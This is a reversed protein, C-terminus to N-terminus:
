SSFTSNRVRTRSLTLCSRVRERLRMWRRGGTDQLPDKPQTWASNDKNRIQHYGLFGLAKAKAMVTKLRKVHAFKKKTADIAPTEPNKVMQKEPSCSTTDEGTKSHSDYNTM